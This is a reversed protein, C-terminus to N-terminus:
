RFPRVQKNLFKLEFIQDFLQKRQKASYKMPYGAHNISILYRQRHAESYASFTSRTKTSKIERQSTTCREVSTEDARRASVM